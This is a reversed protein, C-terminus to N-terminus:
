RLWQQTPWMWDTSPRVLVMPQGEVSYSPFGEQSVAKLQSMLTKRGEFESQFDDRLNPDQQSKSQFWLM